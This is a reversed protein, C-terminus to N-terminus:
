SPEKPRRGDVVSPRYRFALVTIDDSQPAEGAFERVAGLVREALAAASVDKGGSLLEVLREATFFGGQEAEAETVGDTYLVLADGPRLALRITPFSTDAFLGLAPGGDVVVIRAREGSAPILVPGEHGAVACCLEGTDLEVTGAFLTAFMAAENDTCLGRNVEALVRGLDPEHRAVTAFLTKARAMFLAAPVGKGSVDGVLFYLRGA